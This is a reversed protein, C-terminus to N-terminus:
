GPFKRPRVRMPLDDNPQQVVAYISPTVEYDESILEFSLKRVFCALLIVSEEIALHKGVCNRAGAAFSCFAERNAPPIAEDDKSEGKENSNDDEPREEWLSTSSDYRSNKKKTNNENNTNVVKLRKRRVWREPIMDNPRPYNLESRHISWIPLMVTQGKSLTIIKSTDTDKNVDGGVTTTKEMTRTTAPVSPFLRLSELMIAKTYPMEEPGPPLMMEGDKDYNGLVADVEARCKSRKSPNKALLYLAYTLAISTTDYGGFLLTMFIDGLAKNNFNKDGAMRAKVEEADAATVLNTLLDYHVDYDPPDGGSGNEKNKAIRLRTQAIQKSIFTRITNRKQQYDRNAQTPINYLFSMPNWPRKLRYTFETTLDDFASAIPSLELNRTCGFDVGNSRLAVLGFVDITAMKMLPLVKVINGYDSSGIGTAAATGIPLPRNITSNGCEDDSTSGDDALSKQEQQQKTKMRILSDVLTNGIQYVYPRSQKVIGITFSKHVANRYYRWEKNMLSLLNSTGLFQQTHKNLLWTQRRYSSSRMIKKADRGKLVSIMPINFVWFSSMGTEPNAYDCFVRKYGRVFSTRTKSTAKGNNINVTGDEEQKSSCNSGTRRKWNKTKSRVVEAEPDAGRLVMVHGVLWHAGPCSPFGPVVETRTQNALFDEIIQRAKRYLYICLTFSIALLITSTPNIAESDIAYVSSQIGDTYTYHPRNINCESMIEHETRSSCNATSPVSLSAPLSITTIATIM